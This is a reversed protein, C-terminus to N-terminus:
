SCKHSLNSCSAANTKLAMVILRSEWEMRLRPGPPGAQLRLFMPRNLVFHDRAESLTPGRETGSSLNLGDSKMRDAKLLPAFTELPGFHRGLAAPPSRKKRAGPKSSHFTFGPIPTFVSGGGQLPEVAVTYAPTECLPRAELPKCRLRAKM